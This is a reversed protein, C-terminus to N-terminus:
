VYNCHQYWGHADKATVSWVAEHLYYKADITEETTMSAARFLSGNRRIHAKIASFALEIPNFDPSYAPLFLYKMGRTLKSVHNPNLFFIMSVYRDIIMNLIFDAHHVRSNDMVIVSNKGPFPSMQDLLGEIFRAFLAQDFSGEVIDVSLIGDLSLAPLISYRCSHTKILGYLILVYRQGRIFFAKRIARQGRIAWAKKRYTTRRDCSSEDVFVLQEPLYFLGIEYLFRARKVENREM